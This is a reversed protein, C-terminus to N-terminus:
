HQKLVIAFAVEAIHGRAATQSTTVVRCRHRQGIHIAVTREIQVDGGVLCLVREVDVRWLLAGEILHQLLNALRHHHRIFPLLFVPDFRAGIEAAEYPRLPRLGVEKEEVVPM